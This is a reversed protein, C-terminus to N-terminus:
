QEGAKAPAAQREGPRHLLLIRLDLLAHIIIPFILSGSWIYLVAMGLGFMGTGLVGKAGQYLHAIGFIVSSIVVAGVLPLGLFLDQLYFLLFGRFLLEECIGATISLAAFLQREKRTSPLMDSIHDLMRRFSEGPGAGGGRRSRVAFVVIPVGAGVLFAAFFGLVQAPPSKWVLGIDHPSAGGLVVILAVVLVWSWEMAIGRRYFRVLAGRDRLLSRKLNGYMHAGLIPEVFVLYAFLLHALLLSM